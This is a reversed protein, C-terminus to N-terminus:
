NNEEDTFIPSPVLLTIGRYELSGGYLAGATDMWWHHWGGPVFAWLYIGHVWFLDVNTLMKWIFAPWINAITQTIGDVLFQKCEMCLFVEELRHLETVRVTCFKKRTRVVLHLLLEELQSGTTRKCNTCYIFSANINCSIFLDEDSGVGPAEEDCSEACGVVLVSDAESDDMVLRGEDHSIIDM